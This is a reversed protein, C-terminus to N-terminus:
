GPLFNDGWDMQFIQCAHSRKPTTHRNACRIGVPVWLQDLRGMSLSAERAELHFNSWHHMRTGNLLYFHMGVTM